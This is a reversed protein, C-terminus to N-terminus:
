EGEVLMMPMWRELRRAIRAEASEGEFSLHEPNLDCLDPIALGVVNAVGVPGAPGDMMAAVYTGCTPCILFDATRQGFRYRVLHHRSRIRLM